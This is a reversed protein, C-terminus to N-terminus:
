PSIGVIGFEDGDLGTTISLTNKPQNLYDQTAQASLKVPSFAAAVIFSALGCLLSIM